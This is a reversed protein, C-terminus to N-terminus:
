KKIKYWRLDEGKIINVNEPYGYRYLPNSDKDFAVAVLDNWQIAMDWSFIATKNLDITERIRDTGPGAEIFRVNPDNSQIAFVTLQRNNKDTMSMWGVTKVADNEIVDDFFYTFGGCNWLILDKTVYATKLGDTTDLLYISAWNRKVEGLIKTISSDLSAKIAQIPTFRSKSFFLVTMFLILVIIFYVLTKYRSKRVM